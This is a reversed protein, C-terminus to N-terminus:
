GNKALCDGTADPIPAFFMVVDEDDPELVLCGSEDVSLIISAKEGTEPDHLGTDDNTDTYIEDPTLVGNSLLYSGVEVGADEDLQAVMYTGDALITLVATLTDEQEEAIAWSGYIGDNVIRNLFMPPDELEEPHRSVLMFRNENVLAFGSINNAADNEYHLGCDGNVGTTDPSAGTTRLEGALADLEFTGYEVGDFCEPDDGHNVGLVYRGGPFFSVVAMLAEATEDTELRWSGYLKGLVTNNVHEEADAPTVVTYDDGALNLLEADAAFATPLQLFNLATTAAGAVAPDIRIGDGQESDFTQLFIAINLAVDAATVGAQLLTDADMASALTQPTMIGVAPASGLLIAGVSFSVTDGDRYLFEGAANTTGALGSPSAHWTLGEVEADLFVGTSTTGGGGKGGGSGGGGCAAILLVAALVTWGRAFGIRKKM